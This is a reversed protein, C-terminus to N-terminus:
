KAMVMRHKWSLAEIRIKLEEPGSVGRLSLLRDSGRGRVLVTGIGFFLAVMGQQVAVNEVEHLPVSHIERGTYYNQVTLRDRTLEYRAWHRLVAACALLLAGGIVWTEGGDVSFRYFLAGRLASLASLLYLWTFHAWSPFARWVIRQEADAQEVLHLIRM